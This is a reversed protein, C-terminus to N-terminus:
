SNAVVFPSARVCVEYIVMGLAFCDSQRTPRDGESQLIGFLEPDLLESAGPAFSMVPRDSILTVQSAGAAAHTAVGTITSLGFDAPCARRDKDILINVKM